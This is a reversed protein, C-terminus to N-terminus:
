LSYGGILYSPRDSLSKGGKGTLPYKLQLVLKASNIVWLMEGRLSSMSLVMAPVFYRNQVMPIFLSNYPHSRAAKKKKKANLDPM